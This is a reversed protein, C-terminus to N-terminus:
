KHCYGCFRQGRVGGPRANADAHCTFCASGPDSHWPGNVGSMFGRTHTKPDTGKMGDADLHCTICTPDAAQADHCSACSEIDRRAMLAHKGGGSGVGFTTFGVEAHYAPKFRLQNINGGARHCQACSQDQSQNHCTQCDGIRGKASAGHTFRFNLDHVKSLASGQGRDIAMLRPARSTMLDRGPVDVKQLQAGNHCDFCSEQTHCAGCSADGVRASFKHERLFDNRNHAKPRLSAFDTHCTECANSTKRDNHCTTCTTMSPLNEHSALEVKELGKHCTECAVKEQTVHLDHPFLLERKATTLAVYKSPDDSTHCFTCNSSLQEEHCSQCNEKKSLLNDSSFKSEQAMQHCDACAVGAESIHFKHSFKIVEARDQDPATDRSTTVVTFGLVLVIGCAIVAYWRNVGFHKVGTRPNMEPNISFRSILSIFNM